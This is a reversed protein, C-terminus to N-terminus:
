DQFDPHLVPLAEDSPADCDFLVYEAAKQRALALVRLLDTPFGDPTHEPAYIFWGYRTKGGAIQAAYEATPHRLLRDALQADLWTWTDASLHGSSAEMFPRMSSAFSPWADIWVDRRDNSQRLWGDAVLDQIAQGNLPQPGSRWGLDRMAMLTFRLLALDRM